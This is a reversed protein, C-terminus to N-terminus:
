EYHSQLTDTNYWMKNMPDFYVDKKGEFKRYCHKCMDWEKSNETFTKRLTMIMEKNWYDSDFINGYKKDHLSFCCPSINGIFDVGVFFFPDRCFRKKTNSLLIPLHIISHFSRKQTLNKLYEIVEKDDDYLPPFEDNGFSNINNFAIYDVHLHDAFQIMKDLDDLMNRNITFNVKILLHSKVDNRYGVLKEIGEIVRWYVKESTNRVKKYSAADYSDLSINISDLQREIIEKYTNALLTGNTSISSYLRNKKLIEIFHFVEQHLFPEGGGFLIGWVHNRLRKVIGTFQKLSIDEGSFDFNDSLTLWCQSCRLNCRRTIFIESSLPYYNLYCAKKSKSTNLLYRFSNLNKSINFLNKVGMKKLGKFDLIKIGEGWM